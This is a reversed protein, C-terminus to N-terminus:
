VPVLLSVLPLKELGNKLKWFESTAEAFAKFQAAVGGMYTPSAFIIANCSKLIHFVDLNVFRGEVIETSKIQHSFVELGASGVGSITAKVLEGTIGTQTFYVIGVKAM